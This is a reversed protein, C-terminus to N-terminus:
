AVAWLDVLNKLIIKMSYKWRCGIGGPPRNEGPKTVSFMQTNRMKGSCAAHGKRIKWM